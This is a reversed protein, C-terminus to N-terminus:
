KKNTKPKKVSKEEKTKKMPKGCCVIDCVDECDCEDAVSIVLGCENCMYKDGKKITM